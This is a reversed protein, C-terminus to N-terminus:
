NKINFCEKVIKKVLNNADDFSPANPLKSNEKDILIENEFQESISMIENITYRGKKVDLLFDKKKLPFEIKGTNLLEKGELLLRLLHMAFKTDYGHKLILEHRNTLKDLRETISELVKKVRLHKQFSLDGIIFHVDDEKIFPMNKLDNIKLEVMYLNQDQNSLYDKALFLEEHNERKVVMKHKQSKAYGVYKECAGKHPFLHANNLLQLGLDDVFEINEDNVFLHELINPNNQLSLKAFSRIEYLKFDLADKTNKGRDDKDVVSFDSENISKLGFYYDEDAIFIGSYDTDSNETNTGYLHSGFKIKLIESFM